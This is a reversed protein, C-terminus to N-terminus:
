SLISGPAYSGSVVSLQGLQTQYDAVEASAKFNLAIVSITKGALSSIDVTAVSWGNNTSTETIPFTEFSNDSESVGLKVEM